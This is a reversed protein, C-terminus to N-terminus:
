ASDKDEPLPVIVVEGLDRVQVEKDFGRSEKLFEPQSTKCLEVIDGQFNAQMKPFSEGRLWVRSIVYEHTSQGELNFLLWIERVLSTFSSLQNIEDIIRIAEGPRMIYCIAITESHYAKNDLKKIIHKTM